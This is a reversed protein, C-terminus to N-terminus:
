PENFLKSNLTQFNLPSYLAMKSTFTEKPSRKATVGQIKTLIFNYVLISSELNGPLERITPLPPQHQLGM